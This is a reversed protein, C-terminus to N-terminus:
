KFEHQFGLFLGLFFMAYILRIMAYGINIAPDQGLFINGVIILFCLLLTIVCFLCLFRILGLNSTSKLSKFINIYVCVLVAFLIYGIIPPWIYVINELIIDKPKFTDIIKINPLIYWITQLYTFGALLVFAITSWISRIPINWNLTLKISQEEAKEPAAATEPTNM